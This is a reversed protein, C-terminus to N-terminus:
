GTFVGASLRDLLLVTVVVPLAVLAARAPRPLRPWGAATVLFAPWCALMYRAQSTILESCVPLVWLATAVAAAEAPWRGRRVGRWLLVLLCGVVALAAVDITESWALGPLTSLIAGAAHRLAMWPGALERHWAQGAHLWGFPDHVQIAQQAMVAALGALSGALYLVSVRDLRRMRIIRAVALAPGVLVGVLRATSALALFASAVGHRERRASWAAAATAAVLLADSYYSWLFYSSPFLALAVTVRRATAEDVWARAAGWVAVFAALALLNAVVLAAATQQRVVVQVLQTAWSLGPFFAVDSMQGYGGAPLQYGDRLLALYWGGDWAFTTGQFSGGCLLVIAAQVTRWVVFVALPFRPGGFVRAAATRVSPSPEVVTVPRRYGARTTM